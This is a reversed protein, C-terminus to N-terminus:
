LAPTSRRQSHTAEQHATSSSAPTFMTTCAFHHTRLRDGESKMSFFTNDNLDYIIKKKRRNTHIKLQKTECVNM